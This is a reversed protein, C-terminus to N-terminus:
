PPHSEWARAAKRFFLEQPKLTQVLTEYRERKSVVKAGESLGRSLTSQFRLGPGCTACKGGWPSELQQNAVDRAMLM